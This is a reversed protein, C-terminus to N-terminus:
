GMKPVSSPHKSSAVSLSKVTPKGTKTDVVKMKAIKEIRNIFMDAAKNVVMMQLESSISRQVIPKANGAKKILSAIKKIEVDTWKVKEGVRKFQKLHDTILDTMFKIMEQQSKMAFKAGRNELAWIKRMSKVFDSTEKKQVTEGRVDKKQQELREIQIDIAAARAAKAAPRLKKSERIKKQKEILADIDQNIKDVRVESLPKPRYNKWGLENNISELIHLPIGMPYMKQLEKEIKKQASKIPDKVNRKKANKFAAEAKKIVEQAQQSEKPSLKKDFAGLQSRREQRPQLHVGYYTRKDGKEGPINTIAARYPSEEERLTRNTEQAKALAERYGRDTRLYRKLSGDKKRLKLDTEVQRKDSIQSRRETTPKLLIQDERSYDETDRLMRKKRGSPSLSMRTEVNRSEVEGALRQYLAYPGYKARKEKLPDITGYYLRDIVDFWGGDIYANEIVGRVTKFNKRDRYYDEIASADVELIDDYHKNLFDATFLEGPPTDPHREDAYEAITSLNDLQKIETELADLEKQIKPTVIDQINEMIVEYNGGKAFDEIFQIHHQLEHVLLTRVRHASKTNIEITQTDPSYWANEAGEPRVTVEVTVTQDVDKPKLKTWDKFMDPYAKKLEPADLIEGLFFHQTEGQPANNIVDRALSTLKSPPLEHRWKDDKGREWGTRDYIEQPTLGSKELVEAEELANKKEPTLDAKKEM